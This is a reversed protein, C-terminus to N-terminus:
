GAFGLNFWSAEWSLTQCWEEALQQWCRCREPKTREVVSVL